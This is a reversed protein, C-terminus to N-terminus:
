YGMSPGNRQRHLRQSQDAERGRQEREAERQLKGVGKLANDLDKTSGHVIALGDGVVRGIVYRTREGPAPAKEEGQVPTMRRDQVRGAETAFWLPQNLKPPEAGHWVGAVWHENHPTSATSRSLGKEEVDKRADDRGNSTELLGEKVQTRAKEVGVQRAVELLEALDFDLHQEVGGKTRTIRVTRRTVGDSRAESVVARLSGVVITREPAPEVVPPTPEAPPEPERQPGFRRLEPNLGEERWRRDDTAQMRADHGQQLEDATAVADRRIRTLGVVTGLGPIKPDRRIIPYLADQPEGPEVPRTLPSIRHDRPEGQYDHVAEINVRQGVSPMSGRDYWRGFAFDTAKNEERWRLQRIQRDLRPDDGDRILLEEGPQMQVDTARPFVAMPKKWAFREAKSADPFSKEVRCVAGGEVLRVVHVVPWWERSVDRSLEKEAQVILSKARKLDNRGGILPENGKRGERDLTFFTTLGGDRGRTEFLRCSLRGERFEKTLKLHEDDVPKPM